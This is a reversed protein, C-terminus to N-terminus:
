NLVITGNEFSLISSTQHSQVVNGDKDEEITVIMYSQANEFRDMRKYLSPVKRLGINYCIQTQFYGDGEECKESIRGDYIKSITYFKDCDKKYRFVLCNRKDDYILVTGTDAYDLITNIIELPLQVAM